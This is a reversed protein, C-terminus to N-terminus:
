LGAYEIIQTMFEPFQTFSHNGGPLLSTKCGAYFNAAHRYDLVEDATELLLWYRSPTPTIVQSLLQMAHQPTFVFHEGSHFNSHEGIFLSPDLSPVVAPNILVANLDYKEALHSAYHGGLSSGVLTVPGNAAEILSSACAIAEDPVPSLAPCVYHEALGRHAMEESLLRAKWSAPSSCFGHLYLILASDM